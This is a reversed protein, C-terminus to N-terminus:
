VEVSAGDCNHTLVATILVWVAEAVGRENDMVFDKVFDNVVDRVVEFRFEVEEEV